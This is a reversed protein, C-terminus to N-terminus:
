SPAKDPLGSPSPAPGNSPLSPGTDLPENTGPVILSIAKFRAFDVANLTVLATLDAGLMGAVLRADFVQRGLVAHSTCLDLWRLWLDAPDPLLTFVGLLVEIERRATAATLGLGNSKKPRTMVAWAEVLCQQFVCLTRGAAACEGLCRVVAPHLPDAADAFRLVVNTDVLVKV